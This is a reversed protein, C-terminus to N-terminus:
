KLNLTEESLLSKFNNSNFKIQEVKLDVRKNQILYEIIYIDM